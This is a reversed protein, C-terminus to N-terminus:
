WTSKGSSAMYLVLINSLTVEFLPLTIIVLTFEIKLIWGLLVMVPLVGLTTQINAGLNSNINVDQKDEMAAWLTSPDVTLLPLLIFGVFTQTAATQEVLGQLNDTAFQTCIALLATFAFLIFFVMPFVMHPQPDEAEPAPYPREYTAQGGVTVAATWGVAAIAAEIDHRESGRLARKEAKQSPTNFIESHSRLGFWLYATYALLMLVAAGGSQKMLVESNERQNRAAITIVLLIASSLLSLSMTTQISSRNYYQELRNLGGLYFGLPLMLLNNVLLSGFISIQLTTTQRSKLLFVSLILQASNRFSNFKTLSSFEYLTRYYRFTVSILVGIFEGTRIILEDSALIVIRTCPFIAIFNTIFIPVAGQHTYNLTIGTPVALLLVNFLWSSFIYRLSKGLPIKRRLLQALREEGTAM